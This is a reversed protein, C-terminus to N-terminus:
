WRKRYVRWTGWDRILDCAADLLRLAGAIQGPSDTDDMVCWGGPRLKALVIRTDILSVEPSHNGDIHALDIEPVAPHVDRWRAELVRVHEHLGHHLMAGLFHLKVNQMDQERWWGADKPQVTGELAAPIEWPDVGYVIGHGLERCAVAMPLLSRGGFVGVECVVRPRYVRVLRMLEAAKEPRCWGPLSAIHDLATM